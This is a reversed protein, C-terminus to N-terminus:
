SDASSAENRLEFGVIGHRIGGRPDRMFRATRFYSGCCRINDSVPFGDDTDMAARIAGAIAKCQSFGDEKTWIHIRVFVDSSTLFQVSTDREEDEGITLYPFAANPDPGGLIRADHSGLAATVGADAELLAGIADQLEALNMM